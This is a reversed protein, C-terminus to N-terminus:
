AQSNKFSRIIQEKEIRSRKLKQEYARASKETSFEKYFVLTLPAYHKTSLVKQENHEKFRRKLDNTSGIYYWEKHFSKIIYVRWM